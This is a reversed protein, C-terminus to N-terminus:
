RASRMASGTRSSLPRRTTSSSPSRAMSGARDRTFARKDEDGLGPEEKFVDIGFYHGRNVEFDPCKSLALLRPGLKAFVARAQEDTAGPPLKKLDGILDLLLPLLKKVHEAHEHLGHGDPLLELNALLGLPTGAPIPGIQVSRLTSHYENMRLADELGLRQGKERMLRDTEAVFFEAAVESKLAFNFLFKQFAGVHLKTAGAKLM